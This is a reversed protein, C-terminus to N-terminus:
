SELDLVQKHLNLIKNQANDVRKSLNDMLKQVYKVYDILEMNQYVNEIQENHKDTQTKSSM